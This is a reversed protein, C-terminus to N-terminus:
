SLAASIQSRFIEKVAGRVEDLAPRMYAEAEMGPWDMNHAYPAPGGRRGTGYEVYSAYFMDARVNGVVTKDTPTVDATISDRLAGTEVPCYGQATQVLLDCVAQVSAEVAPSVRAEIFQGASSRPTFQARASLRM